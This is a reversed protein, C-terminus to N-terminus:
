GAVPLRLRMCYGYINYTFMNSYCHKTNAYSRPIFKSIHNYVAAFSEELIEILIPFLILFLDKSETYLDHFRALKM